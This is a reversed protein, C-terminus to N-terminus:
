EVDEGTNVVPEPVKEVEQMVPVATRRAPLSFPVALVVALALAATHWRFPMEFWFANVVLAIVVFAILVMLVYGGPIRRLLRAVALVVLFVLLFPIVMGVTGLFQMLAANCIWVNMALSRGEAAMVHRYVTPKGTVPLNFRIPLVGTITASNMQSAMPEMQPADYRGMGGGMGMMGASAAPNNIDTIFFREIGERMPMAMSQDMSVSV